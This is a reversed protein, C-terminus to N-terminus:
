MVAVNRGGDTCLTKALFIVTAGEAVVM